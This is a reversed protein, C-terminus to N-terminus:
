TVDEWDIMEDEEDGERTTWHRLIEIAEEPMGPIDRLREFDKMALKIIKRNAENEFENEYERSAEYVRREEDTIDQKTVGLAFTFTRQSYGSITTEILHEYM